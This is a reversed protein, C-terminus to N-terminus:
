TRGCSLPTKYEIRIFITPSLLSTSVWQRSLTVELQPCPTSILYRLHVSNNSPMYHTGSIADLALCDESIAVGMM